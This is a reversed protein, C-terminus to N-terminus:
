LRQVCDDDDTEGEFQRTTVSIDGSEIDAPSLLPANNDGGGTVLRALVIDRAKAASTAMVSTPGYIVSAANVDEVEGTAIQQGNGTAILTAALPRRFVVVEFLVKRCRAM